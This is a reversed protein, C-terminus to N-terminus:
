SSSLPLEGFEDPKVLPREASGLNSEALFSHIMATFVPELKAFERDEAQYFILYNAWVGTLVRAMATNTLDLYYFNCECALSDQGLISETFSSHDLQEYEQRLSTVFEQLIEAPETGRDYIAVSWYAGAPSYVTIERGGNLLAQPDLSWNEPYHFRIGFQSFDALM